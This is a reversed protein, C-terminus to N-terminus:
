HMSPWTAGTWSRIKVSRRGSSRRLFPSSQADEDRYCGLLLFVPPDPPRMLESLLAASDADGWQLDDIALVLPGRDGLRALLERLRM